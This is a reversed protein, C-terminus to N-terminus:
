DSTRNMPFVRVTDSQSTIYLSDVKVPLTFEYPATDVHVWLRTSDAAWYQEGDIDCWSFDFADESDIFLGDSQTTRHARVFDVITTDGVQKWFVDTTDSYGFVMTTDGSAGSEQIDATRIVWGATATMVATTLAFAVVVAAVIFLVKKM